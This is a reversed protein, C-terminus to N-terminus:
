ARNPGAQRVNARGPSTFPACRCWTPKAPSAIQPSTPRRRHPPFLTLRWDRRRVHLRHSRRGQHYEFRVAQYDVGAVTTPMHVVALDENAVREADALVTPNLWNDSVGPLTTAGYAFSPTMEGHGADLYFASAVVATKNDLAVIDHHLYGAGGSGDADEEFTISASQVYYTLRM